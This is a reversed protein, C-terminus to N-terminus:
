DGDYFLSLEDPKSQFHVGLLITGLGREDRNDFYREKLFIDCLTSPASYNLRPADPDDAQLVCWDAPLCPIEFHCIKKVIDQPFLIKDKYIVFNRHMFWVNKQNSLEAIATADRVEEGVVADGKKLVLTAHCGWDFAMDTLAVYVLDGKLVARVGVNLVKGLGMLSRKEAEEELMLIERRDDEAIRSVRVIGNVSLMASIILNEYKKIKDAFM